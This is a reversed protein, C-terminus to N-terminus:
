HRGVHHRHRRQFTPNGHLRVVPTGSLWDMGLRRYDVPRSSRNPEQQHFPGGWQPGGSINADRPDRVFSPKRREGTLLLVPFGAHM